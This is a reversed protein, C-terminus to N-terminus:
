WYIGHGYLECIKSSKMAADDHLGKGFMNKVAKDKVFQHNPLVPQM